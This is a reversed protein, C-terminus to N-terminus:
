YNQTPSDFQQQKIREVKRYKQLYELNFLISVYIIKMIMYKMIM